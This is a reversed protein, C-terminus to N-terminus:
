SASPSSSMPDRATSARLNGVQGSPGRGIGLSQHSFNSTPKFGQSVEKWDRNLPLIPKKSGEKARFGIPKLGLGTFCGMYTSLRSRTSSM